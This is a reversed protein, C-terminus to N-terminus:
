FFRLVFGSLLLVWLLGLVLVVVLLLLLVLSFGFVVFLGLLVAVIVGVDARIGFSSM